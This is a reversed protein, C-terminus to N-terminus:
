FPIDMDDLDSEVLGDPHKVMDPKKNQPAPELIDGRDKSSLMQMDHGIIETIHREIGEKDLYKRTQISGEVFLTSGKKVYQGVVEALRNFFVIRHWETKTKAEGTEKDKWVSNTALTIKTHAVGSPSMSLVPDQGVIGIIIAKNIGRAM